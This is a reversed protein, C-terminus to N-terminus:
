GGIRSRVFGAGTRWFLRLDRMPFDSWDSRRMGAVALFSASLGAALVVWALSASLAAGSAGYRPILTWNAAVNVLVAIVIWYTNLQHRNRSQFYRMLIKSVSMALIGPLLLRILDAASAYAAGFIWPVLFPGGFWLFAAGALVPMLVYRIGQVAEHTRAREDEQASLRPYIVQGYADPIVWILAALSAAISYSAVAALDVLLYGVLLMDIRYNLQNVAVNAYSKASFGVLSRLYARNLSSPAVYRALPLFTVLGGLCATALFMTAAAMLGADTWWIWLLAAMFVVPRVVMLASLRLFRRQAHYHAASNHQVVTALGASLALAGLVAGGTPFYNAALWPILWISALATLAVAVAVALVVSTTARRVDAEGRNEFYVIAESLGFSMFVTVFSSVTVFLGYEGRAEPSFARATVVGAGFNLGLLLFRSSVVIAADTSRRGQKM